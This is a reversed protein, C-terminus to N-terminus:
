TKQKLEVVFHAFTWPSYISICAMAHKLSHTCHSCTLSLLLFFTYNIIYFLHRIGLSTHDTLSWHLGIYPMKLENKPFSKDYCANM